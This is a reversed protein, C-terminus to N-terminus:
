ENTEQPLLRYFSEHSQISSDEEFLTQHQLEQSSFQLYDPEFLDVYQLSGKM